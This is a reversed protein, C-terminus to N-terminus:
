RYIVGYLFRVVFWYYIKLGWYFRHKAFRQLLSAYWSLDDNKGIYANAEPFTQSWIEYDKSDASILFPQKITLKLFGIYKLLDERGKQELFQAISDINAGIQRLAVEFKKTLSQPNSQVYHYFCRRVMVMRDTLLVAKMMLMMDEGMNMNPIFKLRNERYITTKVLFMWLNWRMAGKAMKKFAEEGDKVEPQYIKRENKEFTLFWDCGVVDAQSEVATQYLMSLTDPEIYDDADVYYIYEGSVAEIVTNRAVAVGLNTEHSLIKVTIDERDYEQLLNGLTHVTKDTSCDNVFILEIDKLDQSFLSKVSRYLYKEVNYMPVIVSVRAKREKKMEM